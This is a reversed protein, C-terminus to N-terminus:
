ALSLFTADKPINPATDNFVVKLELPYKSGKAWQGGVLPTRAV